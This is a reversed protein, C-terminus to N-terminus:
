VLLFPCTDHFIIARPQPEGSTALSSLSGGESEQGVADILPCALVIWHVLVL